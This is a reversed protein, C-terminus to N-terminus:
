GRATSRRASTSTTSGPNRGVLGIEALYPRACGNPCGTMRIVIDDDKCGPRTSRRGRAGDAAGAPLARERGAGPRVDAARRLGHQQPAPGVSATGIAIGHQKLIAEIKAKAKAASTPSSSTRTPPSSSTAPSAARRDRAAGHAVRLGAHGQHPRERHVADPAVEQRRGAAWGIRDGTSTFEFPAARRLKYGLRREVEARFWDLGRDEITYKLRARKRSDRNGWDRQM